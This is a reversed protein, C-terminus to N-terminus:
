GRTVSRLDTLPGPVPHLNVTVAEEGTQALSVAVSDLVFTAAVPQPTATSEVPVYTGPVLAAVPLPAECALRADQPFAVRVPAPYSSRLAADAVNALGAVSKRGRADALMDHLGYFPDLGDTVPPPPDDTWSRKDTSVTVQTALDLGSETLELEAVTDREPVLTETRGLATNDTFLVLRRGVVTFNLGEECLNVLDDYYYGENPKLSRRTLPPTPDDVTLLFPAVNPDDPALARSVSLAAEGLVSLAPGTEPLYRKRAVRRRTLWSVVDRAYFTVARTTTSITVIPGEWVREDNRFIVLTHAWTHVNGLASWCRGSVNAGLLTVTAESYANRVRGWKLETVGSTELELLRAEGRRDYIALAYTGSGLTEAM